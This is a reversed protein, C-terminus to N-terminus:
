LVDLQSIYANALPSMHILLRTTNYIRLVKKTRQCIYTYINCRIIFRNLFLYRKIIFLNYNEIM